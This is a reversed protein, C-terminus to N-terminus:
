KIAQSLYYVSSILSFGGLVQQGMDPSAVLIGFYAAVALSGFCMGFFSLRRSTTKVQQLKEQKEAKSIKKRKM